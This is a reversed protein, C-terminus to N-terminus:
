MRSQRTTACYSMSSQVCTAVSHTNYTKALQRVNDTDNSTRGDRMIPPPPKLLVIAGFRVSGGYYSVPNANIQPVVEPLLPTSM